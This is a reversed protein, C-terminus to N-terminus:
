RKRILKFKQSLYHYLMIDSCFTWFKFRTETIWRWIWNFIRRIPNWKNLSLKVGCMLPLILINILHNFEGNGILKIKQFLHSNLMYTKCYAVVSQSQCLLYCLFYDINFMYYLCFFYHLFWREMFLQVLVGQINIPLVMSSLVVLQCLSSQGKLILAGM